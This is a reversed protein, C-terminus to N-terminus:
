KLLEKTIRGKIYDAMAQIAESTGGDFAPRMFPQPKIGPHMVEGRVGDGVTLGKKTKTSIKYPKRKGKTGTGSYFAGTGFEIMNAYYVSKGGKKRSGGATLRAKVLGRPAKASSVRLSKRLDGSDVPVMSKARKLFVNTGARVAGRMVAKEFKVPFVRLAAELEKLGLIQTKEM